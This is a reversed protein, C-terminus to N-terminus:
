GGRTLARQVLRAELVRGPQLAPRPQVLRPASAQGQLEEIEDLAAELLTAAIQPHAYVHLLARSVFEWARNM